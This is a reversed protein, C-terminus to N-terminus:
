GPSPLGHDARFAAMEVRAGDEHAKLAAFCVTLSELHDRGTCPVPEDAAVSARFASWLARTDDLFPECTELPVVTPEADETGAVVLDSFLQRQIVVGEACDTRWEFRLDNWGGTWTGTYVVEMGGELTLQCTVNADGRYVSWPPNWTRCTLAAVERGYCYRILDLHHITQELMMPHEMTQPYTNMGPRWWDRNRMYNFIGFAPAGMRQSAILSKIAQSVPLYRFNLGVSLPVGAAEGAAVIAHAEQLDLALPKESLVPVGAAFAADTQVRRGEPPTVLVVADIPERALAVAVTEYAPLSELQRQFTEIRIPDVDVIAAITTGPDESLVKGWLGGRNGLGALLVRM